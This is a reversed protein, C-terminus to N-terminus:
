LLTHLVAALVGVMTAAILTVATTVVAPMPGRLDPVDVDARVVARARAAARVDEAARAAGARRAEAASERATDVSVVRQKRRPVATIGPLVVTAVAKDLDPKTGRAMRPSRELSGVDGRSLIV